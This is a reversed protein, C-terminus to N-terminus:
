TCATPPTSRLRAVPRPPRCRDDGETSHTHTRRDPPAVIRHSVARTPGPSPLIRRRNPETLGLRERGPRGAPCRALGHSLCVLGPRNWRLDIGPLASTRTPAHASQIRWSAPTLHPAILLAPLCIAPEDSAGRNSQRGGSRPRDTIGPSATFVSAVWACGRVIGPEERLLAAPAEFIVLVAAIAPVALMAHPGGPVPSPLPHIARASLGGPRRRGPSRPAGDPNAEPCRARVGGANQSRTPQTLSNFM